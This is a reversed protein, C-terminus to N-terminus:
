PGFPVYQRVVLWVFGAGLAASVACLFRILMPHRNFFLMQSIDRVVNPLLWLAGGVLFALGILAGALHLWRVEHIVISLFALGALVALFGAFQMVKEPLALLRDVVRRYGVPNMVGYLRTLFLFVGVALVWSELRSM